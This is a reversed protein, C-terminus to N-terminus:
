VLSLTYEKALSITLFTYGIVRNKGDSSLYPSVLWALLAATDITNVTTSPQELCDFASLFLYKSIALPDKISSSVARSM